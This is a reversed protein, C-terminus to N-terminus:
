KNDGTKASHANEELRHVDSLVIKMLDLQAAKTENFKTWDGTKVAEEQHNWADLQEDEQAKELLAVGVHVETMVERNENNSVKQATREDETLDGSRGIGRDVLDNYFKEGEREDNEIKAAVHAFDNDKIRGIDVGDTAFTNEIVRHYKESM